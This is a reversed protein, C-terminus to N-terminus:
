GEQEIPDFDSDMLSHLANLVTEREDEYQKRMRTQYNLDARLKANEAELADIKVQQTQWSIEESWTPLQSGSNMYDKTEM